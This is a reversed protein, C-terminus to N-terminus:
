VTRDAPILQLSKLTAALQQKEKDLYDVLEPGDIYMPTWFHAGLQANWSDSQVAKRLIGSWFAIQAATLGCAGTLGRWSGVTCDVHQEVWTPVGALVGGLRTPASVAIARLSGEGLAKVASAATIIGVEANGAIVDNVVYLASDFIRLEPALVDADAHRTVEALAIHNPNGASTSLAATIRGGTTALRALLDAGSRLPSAAPVVFLLYETYLIALPTYSGQDFDAQGILKDTTLNAASITVVHPDGAQQALYRWAERGGEAPRNSVAVPVTFLQRESCAQALAQAARDTGGGPPTTAVIEIPSIPRWAANSSLHESL